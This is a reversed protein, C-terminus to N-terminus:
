ELTDANQWKANGDGLAEDGLYQRGGQCSHIFQMNKGMCMLMCVCVSQKGKSEALSSTCEITKLCTYICTIVHVHVDCKYTSVYMHINYMCMQM